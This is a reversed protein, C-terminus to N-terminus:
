VEKEKESDERSEQPPAEKFPINMFWLYFPDTDKVLRVMSHEKRIELSLPQVAAAAKELNKEVGLGNFYCFGLLYQALTYGQNAAKEMWQFATVDNKEVGVGNAYLLSLECQAKVYGQGAAKEMWQFATVDNKEVGKGYFYWLGLVYQAAAYGQVASKEMWQFATVPNAKVGQGNSYYRSLEYQAGGHGQVAAKEMCQFATVDNKEVGLGKLYCLSSNYQALVHEKWAAKEMWQFATVDNKEVGKGNLYCLGLQCQAKAHGQVAAKAFWGFAKGEDIEIIKIPKGGNLYLLGLDYQARKHGKEAAKHLYEKYIDKDVGAERCFDCYNYLDVKNGKDALYRLVKRAKERHSIRLYAAMSRFLRVPYQTENLREILTPTPVEGTDNVPGANLADENLIEEIEKVRVDREQIKQTTLQEICLFFLIKELAKELHSIEKGGERKKTKLTADLSSAVGRVKDYIYTHTHPAGNLLAGLFPSPFIQAMLYPHFFYSNNNAKVMEQYFKGLKKNEGLNRLRKVKKGLDFVRLKYPTSHEGADLPLFKRSLFPFVQTNLFVEDRLINRAWKATGMLPIWAKVGQPDACVYSFIHEKMESPLDELSMSIIEEEEEQSEKEVKAKKTEAKKEKENLNARKRKNRQQEGPSYTVIMGEKEEEEMAFTVNSFSLLPIFFFLFLIKMPIM